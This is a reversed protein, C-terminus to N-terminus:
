WLFFWKLLIIVVWCKYDIINGLKNYKEKILNSVFFFLKGWIYINFYFGKDCIYM